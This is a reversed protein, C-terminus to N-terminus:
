WWSTCCYTYLLQYKNKKKSSQRNDQNSQEWDLQQIGVTTGGSSPRSVHVPQCFISFILQADLQNKKVVILGQLTHTCWGNHCRSVGKWCSGSRWSHFSWFLCFLVVIVRFQCIFSMDLYVVVRILQVVLTYLCYCFIVQLFKCWGLYWIIIWFIWYAPM